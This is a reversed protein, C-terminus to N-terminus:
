SDRPGGCAPFRHRRASRHVRPGGLGVRVGRVPGGEPPKCTCPACDRTHDVETYFVGLKESFSPWPDGAAVPAQCERDAGDALICHRWGEPLRSQQQDIMCRQGDQACLTSSVEGSCAIAV